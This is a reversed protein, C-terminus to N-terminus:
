AEPEEISKAKRAFMGISDGKPLLTTLDLGFRESLSEGADMLSIVQRAGLLPNSPSAHRALRRMFANGARLQEGESLMMFVPPVNDRYLAADLLQSRRFIAKGADLDPYLEIDECVGALQLLESETEEFAIHVDSATGVAVLQTSDESALDLAAKCREILRWCATLDEAFDNFRKMSGEWVREAQRFSDLHLFVHGAEEAEARKKKLDLLVSENALCANRAEDFYYAITNFHAALAPLYHPETVFWRCRVCNRNGGPVPAHKANSLSTGPLIMPGGNHCGGIARNEMSDSTNGGVICLGHHMPMWGVANRAAPHVPVVNAVSAVSNCIARQVLEEHATDLLFNQISANKNAELRARADLLVDRIHTAGPKTYYLTMVLRSHGVLKQLVPFPVQGELALATILSVRLSHLPFLTRKKPQPPLLRIPTGNHHTETRGALRSEFAKLLYFWCLNLVQDQLPFHRMTATPYEPLRFLFCADPYRALQFDTKVIIHRRDLEAWSTRRSIRNYKEQWNRLKELWYFVNQHIAGGHTWPLLYGKEPGSKSLDATKNTNIYLVAPADQKDIHDDARRFVGQQLPRSESGQAIAGGNLEWRGETFRWTDAEGSDLVRVQSTRLPLILKVLLAVWRVPSWMQLVQGGRYGRSLKRIRWVCDPDDRDIQDETVEYWDPASAGLHGLKSGLAGQAWQWDRFHPGAVLMQRLQDIYGYPLPSYVSEDRKPLGARSMRLVPNHYGPAVVARGERDLQSFHRLLVFQLFAHVLNNASIGWSSDSCATRHFDPVTTTQKLFVGPDLPLGRLILYREFFISLAQLRQHLGLTEGRLWELALTRWAALEPYSEGVWTLTADSDRRTSRETRAPKRRGKPKTPSIKNM